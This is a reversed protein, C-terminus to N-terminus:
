QWILQWWPTDIGSIAPLMGLADNDTVTDLVNTNDSLEIYTNSDMCEVNDEVIQIGSQPQINEASKDDHRDDNYM